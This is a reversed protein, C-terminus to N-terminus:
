YLYSKYAYNNIPKTYEDGNSIYEDKLAMIGNLTRRFIFSEFGGHTTLVGIMDGTEVWPLGVCQTENPTYTINSIRTYMKELINVIDPMNDWDYEMADNCYFINDDILYTNKGTPDGIYEWEVVSRAKNDRIQKVIQIRSIGQVRYPKCRAYTYQSMYLMASDNGKPYLTDSPYLDDRPYLAGKTCYRFQIKGFRDIALFCGTLELLSRVVDRATISSDCAFIELTNWNFYTLRAPANELDFEWTVNSVKLTNGVMDFFSLNADTQQSGSSLFGKPVYIRISTCESSVKFYDGSDACFRNIEQSNSDFEKICVQANVLGRYNDDVHTKYDNCQEYLHWGPETEVRSACDVDVCFVKCDYNSIPVDIYGYVLHYGSGLLGSQPDFVQFNWDTTLADFPSDEDVIVTESFDERSSLDAWVSMNWFSSFIQRVYAQSASNESNSSVLYMYRTYWDAANQDLKILDDYATINLRRFEHTYDEQIDTVKYRGLPINGTKSTIYEELTYGLYNICDNIDWAYFDNWYVQNCACIQVEKAQITFYFSGSSYRDDNADTIYMNIKSIEYLHPFYEDTQPVQVLPIWSYFDVWDSTIESLTYKEYGDWQWVERTQNSNYKLCIGLHVFSPTVGSLANVTLKVKMKVAMVPEDLTEFEEYHLNPAFYHETTGHTWSAPGGGNFSYVEEPTNTPGGQYWNVKSAIFPKRTTINPRIYRDKWDETRGVIDFEVYSSECAGFKLIDNSSLSETLTFSEASLDENTIPDIDPKHVHILKDFDFGEPDLLISSGLVPLVGSDPHRQDWDLSEYLIDSSEVQLAYLRASFNCQGITRLWLGSIDKLVSPNKICGFLRVWNQKDWDDLTYILYNQQTEPANGSVLVGLQTPATTVNTFKLMFSFYLYKSDKLYDGYLDAPNLFNGLWQWDADNTKVVNIDYYESSSSPPNYNSGINTYKGTYWNIGDLKTPADEDTTIYLQKPVSDQLYDQKLEDSINLM